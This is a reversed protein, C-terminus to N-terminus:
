RLTPDTFSQPYPDCRDDDAVCRGEEDGPCEEDEPNLCCCSDEGCEHPICGDGSHFSCPCDPPASM